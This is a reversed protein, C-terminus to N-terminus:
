KKKKPCSIKLSSPKTEKGMFQGVLQFALKKGPECREAEIKKRLEGQCKISTGESDHEAVVAGTGDLAKCHSGKKKEGGAAPAEEKKAEEGGTAPASAPEEKKVGGGTKAQERVKQTCEGNVKLFDLTKRSEKVPCDIPDIKTFEDACVDKHDAINKKAMACSQAMADDVKKQAADRTDAFAVGSLALAAVIVFRKM